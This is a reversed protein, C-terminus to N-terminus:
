NSIQPPNTPLGDFLANAIAMLLAARIRFEGAEERTAQLSIDLNKHAEGNLSVAVKRWDIEV